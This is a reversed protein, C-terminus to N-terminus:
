EERLIRITARSKDPHWGSQRSVALAKARRRLRDLVRNTRKFERNRRWRLYRWVLWMKARHMRDAPEPNAIREIM